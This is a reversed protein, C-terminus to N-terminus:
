EEEEEEYEIIQEEKIREIAEFIKEHFWSEFVEINERSFKWLIDEASCDMAELIDTEDIIELLETEAEGYTEFEKIFYGEIRFM